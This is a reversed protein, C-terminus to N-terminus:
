SCKGLKKNYLKRIADLGKQFVTTQVFIRKGDKIDEIVDFYGWEVFRQYPENGKMLIGEDRLFKFLKNRGIIKGKEDKLKLLKAAESMDVTKNNKTVTNYFDVKPKAEEIQKQQAEIQLQQQGALLLAEGFSKPIQPKLKEEMKNFAEIFELKFKLAKEGTFGMALLSFGDRNMIFAPQLRGYSDPLEVEVFMQEIKLEDKQLMERIDRLVNKHEKEFEQAVIASSTVPKGDNSIFVVGTIIENQKILENM